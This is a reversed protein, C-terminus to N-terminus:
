SLIILRPPYPDPRRHAGLSSRDVPPEYHAGLASLQVADQPVIGPMSACIPPCDKSAGTLGDCKTCDSTSGHIGATTAQMEDAMAADHMRAPMAGATAFPAIGLALVAVLILIRRFVLM